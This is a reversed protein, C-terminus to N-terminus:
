RVEVVAIAESRIGVVNGGAAGQEHLALLYECRADLNERRRGGDGEGWWKFELVGAAAESV